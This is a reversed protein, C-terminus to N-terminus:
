SFKKLLSLNSYRQISAKKEASALTERNYTYSVYNKKVCFILCAM